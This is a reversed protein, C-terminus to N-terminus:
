SRTFIALVSVHVNGSAADQTGVAQASVGFTIPHSPSEGLGISVLSAGTSLAGISTGNAIADGYNTLGTALDAAYARASLNSAASFTGGAWVSVAFLLGAYGDPPTITGLPYDVFTSTSFTIGSQNAQLYAPYVLAASATQIAKKAMAQSERLERKIDAIQAALQKEPSAAPRGRGIQGERSM